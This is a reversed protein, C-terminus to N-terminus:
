SGRKKYPGCPTVDLFVANKTTVAMFSEFRVFYSTQVLETWNVVRCEPRIEVV